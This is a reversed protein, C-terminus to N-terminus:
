LKNRKIYKFVFSFYYGIRKFVGSISQDPFPIEKWPSLNKYHIYNKKYPSPDLWFWPKFLRNAYHIIKPNYYNEFLEKKSIIKRKDIRKSLQFFIWKKKLRTKILRM